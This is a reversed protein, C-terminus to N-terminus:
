SDIPMEIYIDGDNGIDDSPPGYGIIINSLPLEVIVQGFASGQPATYTGNQNATLNEISVSSSQMTGTILNGSKDHATTGHLLTEPKVTDNTLDIVVDNHVIVKNVFGM